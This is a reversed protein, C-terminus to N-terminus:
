HFTGFTADPSIELILKMACEKSFTVRIVIPKVLLLTTIEYEEISGNLDLQTTASALRM